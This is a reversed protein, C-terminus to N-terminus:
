AGSGGGTCMDHVMPNLPLLAEETYTADMRELVLGLAQAQAGHTWTQAM